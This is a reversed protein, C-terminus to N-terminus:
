DIGLRSSELAQSKDLHGRLGLGGEVKPECVLSWSIAYIGGNWLFNEMLHEIKM